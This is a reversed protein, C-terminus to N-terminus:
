FTGGASLMGGGPLPALGVQTNKTVHVKPVVLWGVFSVIGVGLLIDTAVGFGVAASKSGAGKSTCTGGTCEKQADQVFAFAFIGTLAAGGLSALSVVSLGKRLGVNAPETHDVVDPTASGDDTTATAASSGSPVRMTVQRQEGVGLDVVRQARPDGDVLLQIVHRGPNVRRPVSLAARKVLEGDVSVQGEGQLRIVLQPIKQELEDALQQSQERAKRAEASEHRRVPLAVAAVFAARAEVLDNMSQYTKGLEFGIRPTPVLSYAAKFKVVAAKPDHSKDRLDLGQLFAARASEVDAASPQSQALAPAPRGAVLALALAGLALARRASRASRAM